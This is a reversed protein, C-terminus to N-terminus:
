RIMANPPKQEEVRSALCMPKRFRPVKEALESISHMHCGVNGLRQTTERTPHEGLPM